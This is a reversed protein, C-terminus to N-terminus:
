RRRAGAIEQYHYTKDREEKKIGKEGRRILDRKRTRKGATQGAGHDASGRVISIKIVRLKKYPVLFIM